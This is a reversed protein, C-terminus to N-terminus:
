QKKLNQTKSGFQHWGSKGDQSGFVDRWKPGNQEVEDQNEKPYGLLQGNPVADDCAYHGDFGFDQFWPLGGDGEETANAAKQKTKRHGCLYQTKDLGALCKTLRVNRNCNPMYM